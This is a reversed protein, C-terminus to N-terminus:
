LALGLDWPFGDIDPSSSVAAWNLMVAEPESLLRGNEKDWEFDAPLLLGPIHPSLAGFAIYHWAGRPGERGTVVLEAHRLSDRYEMSLHEAALVDKLTAKGLDPLDFHLAPFPFTTEPDTLAVAVSKLAEDPSFTLSVLADSFRYGWWQGQLRTPAGLESRIWAASAGLELGTFINVPTKGHLLQVRPRSFKARLGLLGDKGITIWLLALGGLFGGVANVVIDRFPILNALAGMRDIWDWVAVTTLEQVMVITSSMLLVIAFPLRVTRDKLWRKM